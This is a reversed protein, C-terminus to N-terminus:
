PIMQTLIKLKQTVALLHNVALLRTVVLPRTVVLLLSGTIQLLAQVRLAQQHCCITMMSKLTLLLNVDQVIKRLTKKVTKGAEDGSWM